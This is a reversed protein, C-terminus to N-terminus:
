FTKHSAPVNGRQDLRESSRSRPMWATWTTDHQTSVEEPPFYLSTPHIIWDILHIRGHYNQSRTGTEDVNWIRSEPINRKSKVELLNDFFKDVVVKNFGSARSQSTAEPRRISLSPNRKLFAGIWDESAKKNDIWNQSVSVKNGIAFWYALEKTQGATLGHSM